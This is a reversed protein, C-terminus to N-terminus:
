KLVGQYVALHGDLMQDARFNDLSRRRARDGLEIAVEPSRLFREMCDALSKADGSTFKLGTEGAVEAEGKVQHVLVWLRTACIM